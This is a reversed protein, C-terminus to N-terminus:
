ANAIWAVTIAGPVLREFQGCVVTSTNTLNCTMVGGLSLVASTVAEARLAAGPAISAIVQAVASVIGDILAQTKQSEYQTAVALGLPVIREQMPLATVSVGAPRYGNIKRGTTPDVYGDISAQVNALLTNTPTGASGCIYIKLHGAHEEIGVRTVYEQVAGNTDRVTAAEACYRLADVTGRAVSLIFSAFRTKREIESEANIGSTFPLNAYTTEGPLLTSGTGVTLENAGINGDPGTVTCVVAISAQTAGVAIAVAELTHFVLSKAPVEFAAGKPLVIADATAPFNVTLWGAAPRAEIVAFGFAQYISVPIADQLGQYMQLYLEEIEIAPSEMLTRAVAGVSFDTIKDQSARAVNIMSAVISVFNKIQFTM